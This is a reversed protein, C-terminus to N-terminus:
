RRGKEATNLYRHNNIKRRNRGNDSPPLRLIEPWQQGCLCVVPLPETNGRGIKWDRAWPSGAAIGVFVTLGEGRIEDADLDEVFRSLATRLSRRISIRPNPHTPTKAPQARVFFLIQM